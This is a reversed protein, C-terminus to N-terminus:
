CLSLLYQLICLVYQKKEFIRAINIKSPFKYFECCVVQVLMGSQSVRFKTQVAHVESLMCQIQSIHKSSDSSDCVSGLHKQRFYTLHNHM